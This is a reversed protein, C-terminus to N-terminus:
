RRRRAAAFAALGGALMLWSSPEPVGSVLQFDATLEGVNDDYFGPLSTPNGFNFADVFGLYLKTAGAPVFFKQLTGANNDVGTKGDGIAFTQHPLPTIDVFVDFFSDLRAPAPDVPELNTTFVGALFMTRNMPGMGSIGGFSLVDTTGSAHPGGDPGNGAGGLNNCCSVTGTVNNFLIYSFGTVDIVPPM